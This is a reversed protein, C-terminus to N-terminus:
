EHSLRIGSLVTMVQGPDVSQGPQSAEGLFADLLDSWNSVIAQLSPDKTIVRMLARELSEVDKTILCGRSFVDFDTPNFISKPEFVIPLTGLFMSELALQSGPTVLTESESIWEYMEKTDLVVQLSCSGNEFTSPQEVESLDFTWAPHPRIGVLYRGKMANLCRLATSALLLSTPRDASFSVLIRIKSRELDQNPDQPLNVPKSKRTLLDSHRTPPIKRTRPAPFGERHLSRKCFENPVLMFDPWMDKDRISLGIQSWFSSINWLPIYNNCLSLATHWYGVTAVSSIDKLAAIVAHDLPQNEFRFVVHNPNQIRCVRNMALEILHAQVFEGRMLSTMLNQRVLDSIDFSHFRVDLFNASSRLYNLVKSRQIRKWIVFFDSLKIYDNLVLFEIKSRENAVQKYAKFEKGQLWILYKAASSSSDLVQEPFFRETKGKPGNSTWWQPYITFFLSESTFKSSLSSQEHRPQSWILRLQLFFFRTLQVILYLLAKWHSGRNRRASFVRHLSSDGSIRIDVELPSISDLSLKTLALWYLSTALNGEFPSREFFKLYAVRTVDGGERRLGEVVRRAVVPFQNFYFDRVMEQARESFEGHDVIPVYACEPYRDRLFNRAVDGEIGLTLITSSSHCDSPLVELLNDTILLRSVASKGNMLVIKKM